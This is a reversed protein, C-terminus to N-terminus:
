SILVPLHLEKEKQGRKLVWCVEALKRVQYKMHKFYETIFATYKWWSQSNHLAQLMIDSKGNHFAELRNCHEIGYYRDITDTM